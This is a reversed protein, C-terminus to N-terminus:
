YKIHYLGSGWHYSPFIHSSFRNAMVETFFSHHNHKTHLEFDAIASGLSMLGMLPYLFGFAKSQVTHGYEHAYLQDNHEIYHDFSKVSAISNKIDVNIYAGLTIGQHNKSNENTIFTAGGWFDVRDAWSNRVESWFYGAAQQALEWTHRSAGEWVQGFLSKNEDLYFNGLMIKGANAIGKWGSNIAGGVMGIYPALGDLASAISTETFAIRGAMGSLGPAGAMGILLPSSLSGITGAALGAISGSLFYKLGNWHGLDDHRIKHAMLNGLGFMVPSLAGTLLMTTLFFEGDEDTYRLPNNLAYTYRNFNQSFDPSQVYPDPSLFRGLLPDYLRANMNVLGFWALHEHGTFGRGLFLEPESGAPYIELTEPNRLRGWPDYSYEAVLEGDLTAIQTINGLFDRGINYATWSGDNERQYVMPASYADGGLYLREKSGSPTQDYEYRGGMYYRTLVQTTDDEVYMRVRDGDGDYTFAVYKAGETITFPRNYSTYDVSQQCDQVLGSTEPELMTVQYPRASNGYTMTGVGGISLINGKDDYSIQRNGISVLRNLGDYGFTETQGNVGDSRSLLNGTTVDFDYTFNQLGGGGMKRYTPMGFATFGYERTIGGTTMVTAMGLDNEGDLRWVVTGDSLTIGTNHGNSYAYSETTIPGSQSVYQVDDLVSATGYGFTKRLWKGDPVTEKVSSVRDLDDYSYETGAGNTSQEAVLRGDADYTYVTNYEGPREVLTTRGYKDKHTKVVGGPNSYTLVSSGDGNWVYAYTHAGASPDEIKTRRGYDDYTFKTTINGPASISYPQGDDALSYTITGGADTVSIVDGRANKTSTSSIGDSMSTVSTGSYSWTSTKGSAETLSVPRDYADYAYTNWCSATDGRYPLSTRSLRGKGDYEKATWQWQGDFRKVGSLLERGLADYHVVTEPKGTEATAVTYLGTGGWATTTREVMGDPHTSSLLNGWADYVYATTRNRYDKVTTPKGFKNYGGFTTTHGLADTKTLRYRGDSDYTYTEGVFETAGYPASKESIVNGMDDYQWRTESVLNTADYHIRVGIPKLSSGITTDLQLGLGKRVLQDTSGESGADSPSKAIPRHIVTDVEVIKIVDGFQGVYRRNTLPRYFNDYTYVSKEKWAIAGNRDGEKVTSEETVIGLVYKSPSVSNEYTRTVTDTQVRDTGRRRSTIVTKPLDYSGYGYSTATVVGTVADNDISETLRPNLKGYTTSNNDYTNTITRYPGSDVSNLRFTASTTVGRKQADHIEDAIETPNGPFYDYSRIKSFGCFGLGLNHVVGNFYCYYKNRYRDTYSNESLYADESELVHIPFTRFAYGSANSVTLSNDTWYLSNSPLYVYSNVLMRGRGDVSKSLCRLEPSPLSYKFEYIYFGDIKIFSSMGSYDIVNSPIIGKADTISAPSQSFAGFSTGDTNMYSGLTTGSAKVLDSLGDNNLDIFLFSDEKSRSTLSFASSLFTAGNFSYRSWITSSGATPAVMIDVYGDGNLDTIYYPRDTSSLIYSNVGSLTKEKAFSTYGQLRYVELGSSTAYCLETKADNDIDCAFLRNYSSLPFDFLKAESLKTGNSLDILTAYSTQDYNKAGNYNKDFAVTLLQVKGNGRFDGWYYERRYPSVYDGSKVTGKVQVEFQSSRAPAGSSNCKYVTILLKTNDGSTGNFNVKVIEDLGDGDVDVAEITQFGSGATISDNVDNFDTLSPVFLIVQDESYLSGFKFKASKTLSKNSKTVGYNEFYPYILIGDNFSSSVFKGRRYIFEQKDNDSKFTSSLFLSNDDKYLHGDSAQIGNYEASGYEFVLPRLSEGESSCDVQTLLWVNDKQEYSIAYRCLTDGDKKSAIGTVRMDRYEARGAYYRTAYRTNPTYSFTMEGKYAGTSGYGYRISTLRPVGNGVDSLYSFSIKNGELDTLEKIPYTPLNYSADAWADGFHATSGDPYKATFSTVYGHSNYDPAVLVNGTATILPFASMTASQTNTVLPVGDLAFVADNDNVNAGKAASHYYMNKNILTVSSVGQIDWGYGAWGDGAQSNYGIAISPTLKFGPATAIPIQYTRAGAPTMGEQMPIEGVAYDAINLKAARRPFNRIATKAAELETRRKEFFARKDDESFILKRRQAMAPHAIHGFDFPKASYEVTVGGDSSQIVTSDIGAHSMSEQAFLRGSTPYLLCIALVAAGAFLNDRKM